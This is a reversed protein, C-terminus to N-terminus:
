EIDGFRSAAHLLDNPTDIDYLVGPDNTEIEVTLNQYNKLVKRAGEDGKLEKLIQFHTKGFAIPNGVIGNFKPVVINTATVRSAIAKYTESKVFPMDALCILCGDWSSIYQIGFAISEGMGIEDSLYEITTAKTSPLKRPIGNQIVAIIESIEPHANTLQKITEEYITTSKKSDIKATLKQGGFRRSYGAALVLAGVFATM